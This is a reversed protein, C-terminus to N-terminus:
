DENQDIALRHKVTVLNASSDIMTVSGEIIELQEQQSKNYFWALM